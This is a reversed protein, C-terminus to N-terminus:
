NKLLHLNSFFDDTAIELAKDIIDRESQRLAKCVADVVTCKLLHELRKKLEDNNPIDPNKAKHDAIVLEAKLVELKSKQKALTSKYGNIQNAHHKAQSIQIAQLNAIQNSQEIHKLRQLEKECEIFYRRAQKGKDNNEVMCLEKAMDITIFYEKRPRRGTYVVQIIFDLNEIFGYQTIRNKIWDAYQQDSNLFTHLERANATNTEAGIKQNNYIAILQM